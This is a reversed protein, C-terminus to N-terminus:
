LRRGASTQKQTYEAPFDNENLREANVGPPAGANSMSLTVKKLFSSYFLVNSGASFVQYRALINRKCISNPIYAARESVSFRESSLSHAEHHDGQEGQRVREHSKEHAVPDRVPATPQM